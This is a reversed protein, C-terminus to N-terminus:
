LYSLYASLPFRTILRHFQIQSLLFLWSNFHTLLPNLHNQRRQLLRLRSPNQRHRHSPELRPEMSQWHPRRSNPTTEDRLSRWLVGHLTPHEVHASQLNIWPFPFSTTMGRLKKKELNKKNEKLKSNLFFLCFPTMEPTRIAAVLQTTVFDQISM